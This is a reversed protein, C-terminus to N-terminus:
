QLGEKKVSPRRRRSGMVLSRTERVTRAGPWGRDISFNDDTTQRGFRVISSPDRDLLVPLAVQTTQRGDDAGPPPFWGAHRLSGFLVVRKVGFRRRLM